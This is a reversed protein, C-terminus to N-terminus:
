FYGGKAIIESITDGQRVWKFIDIENCAIGEARSVAGDIDGFIIDGPLVAGLSTAFGTPGAGTVIVGYRM